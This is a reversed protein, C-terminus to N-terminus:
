IASLDERQRSAASRASSPQSSTHGNSAVVFTRIFSTSSHTVLGLVGADSFRPSSITISRGMPNSCPSYDLFYLHLLGDLQRAFQRVMKTRHTSHADVILFVARGHMQRVRGLSRSSCCGNTRGALVM